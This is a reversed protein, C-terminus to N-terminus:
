TQRTSSFILSCCTVGGEAKLIESVDVTRVDIERDILRVLTRPFASPYIVTDNVFLANAGAPEAPDVTVLEYARFPEASIWAPNYLLTNKGVQSVASKLHLCAEVPVSITTYGFGSLLAQVQEFAALNTRTSRGVFVTRDICLVDGGDLTGPATIFALPRHPELAAATSETEAQRSAAGPRAIIAIEDFVLASDEVFVSDPMTIEPPLSSVHCGLGRLVSEYAAHQAEALFIDIPERSLHTLECEAFNPSIKRTIAIM